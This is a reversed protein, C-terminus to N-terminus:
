LSLLSIKDESSSVGLSCGIWAAGCIIVWLAVTDRRSSFPCGEVGPALFSGGRGGVGLIGVGRDSRDEAELRLFWTGGSSIELGLDRSSDRRGTTSSSRPTPDSLSSVIFPDTAVAAVLPDSLLNTSWHIWLINCIFYICNYFTFQLLALLAM